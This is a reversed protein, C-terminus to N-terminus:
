DRDRSIFIWTGSTWNRNKRKPTTASGRLLIRGFIQAGLEIRDHQLEPDDSYAPVSSGCGDALFPEKGGVFLGSCTRKDLHMSMQEFIQESSLMKQPEPVPSIKSCTETASELTKSPKAPSAAGYATISLRWVRM